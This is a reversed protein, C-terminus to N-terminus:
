HPAADSGSPIASEGRCAAVLQVEITSRREEVRRLLTNDDVRAQLSAGPCRTVAYARHGRITAPSAGLRQTAWALLDVLADLQAATPSQEDFNGDLCAAFHGTPDYHTFTDPATSLSRGEFLNGQRDVFVHYALDGLGRRMHYRQYDRLRASGSTTDTAVVASHHITLREIRHPIGTGGAPLAGWAKRCILARTTLPAQTQPPVAHRGPLPAPSTPLDHGPIEVPSPHSASPRSRAGRARLAAVDGVAIALTAGALGRVLTRRQM